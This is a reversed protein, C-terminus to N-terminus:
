LAAFIEAFRKKAGSLVKVAKVAELNVPEGVVVLGVMGMGYHGSCKYGYVGEVTFTVSLKTDLEGKFPEAGEPLMGPISVADHTLHVPVFHVTDGPAIRVLDPEFAMEGKVGKSLMKVEFEAAGAAGAIVLSCAALAIAFAYRSM